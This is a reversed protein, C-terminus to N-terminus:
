RLVRRLWQYYGTVSKEEGDVLYEFKFILELYVIEM